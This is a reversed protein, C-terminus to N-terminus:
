YNLFWLVDHDSSELDSVLTIPKPDTLFLNLYLNNGHKLWCLKPFRSWAARLMQMGVCIRCFSFAAAFIIGHAYLLAAKTALNFLHFSTITVLPVGAKLGVKLLTNVRHQHHSPSLNRAQQGSDDFLAGSSCFTWSPCRFESDFPVHALSTNKIVM